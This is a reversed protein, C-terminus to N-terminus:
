SLKQAHKLNRVLYNGQVGPWHVRDGRTTAQTAHSAVGSADHQWALKVLGTNARERNDTQRGTSPRQQQECPRTGHWRGRASGRGCALRLRQRQWRTRARRRQGSDRTGRRGTSCAASATLWTKGLALVLLAATGKEEVVKVVPVAGYIQRSPPEMTRNLGDLAGSAPRRATGRKGAKVLTQGLALKANSTAPRYLRLPMPRSCDGRGTGSM